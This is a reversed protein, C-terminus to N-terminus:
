WLDVPTDYQRAPNGTIIGVNKNHRQEVTAQTAMPKDLPNFSKDWDAPNTSGLFACNSLAVTMLSLLIIQLKKM